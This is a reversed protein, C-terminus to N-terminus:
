TARLYYSSKLLSTYKIKRIKIGINYGYKQRNEIIFIWALLTWFFAWGEEQQWIKMM